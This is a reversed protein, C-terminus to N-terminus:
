FSPRFTPLLPTSDDGGYSIPNGTPILTPYETPILTPYETPILTPYETPILTPDETPILTPNKSPIRTPNKTPTGKKTISPLITSPSRTPIKTPNLTPNLSPQISPNLTPSFSPVNNCTDGISETPSTINCSPEYYRSFTGRYCSWILGANNYIIFNANDSIIAYVINHMASTVPVNPAWITIDNTKIVSFIGLNSLSMKWASPSLFGSCWRKSTSDFICVNGRSTLTLNYLGNNSILSGGLLLDNGPLLCNQCLIQRTLFIFIFMIFLAM